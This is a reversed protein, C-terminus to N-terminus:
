SQYFIIQSGMDDFEFPVHLLHKLSAKVKSQKEPAVLFLIFGGGGAGLLKGGAAGNKIATEYIKDIYPSSIKNSLSRKIKWTENLMKGFELFRSNNLLSIAEDVMKYMSTLEKKKHPTNKIQEAAIESATRSFGTFFLMLHKKFLKLRNSSITIRTPSFHNNGSFDIRNFGGLSALIQDQCGVNEKNLEQEIYIAERALQTKSPMIGKLAYIAHLLGVTFSSSSGLGTRAPLDGDHHIEVGQKIKMFKLTERVSVHQIEDIEHVHEMKSYIIRHKHEFFPPLYRCTIYCYKNITTALVAGKHEKLWAPYDTGGGFFSIRFPTKSIIM